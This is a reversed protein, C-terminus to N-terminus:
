FTYSGLAKGPYFKQNFPTIRIPGQWFQDYEGLIPNFLDPHSLVRGDKYKGVLNIKAANAESVTELRFPSNFKKNHYFKDVMEIDVGLCACLMGANFSYGKNNEIFVAVKFWDTKSTFDKKMEQHVLSIGLVERVEPADEFWEGNTKFKALKKHFAKEDKLTGPKLAVLSLKFPCNTQIDPMRRSPDHSFGVKFFGDKKNQARLVYIM